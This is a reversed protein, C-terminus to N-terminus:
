CGSPHNNEPNDSDPRLLQDLAEFEDIRFNKKYFFWRDDDNKVSALEEDRVRRYSKDDHAYEEDEDWEDALHKDTTYREDSEPRKELWAKPTRPPPMRMTMEAYRMSEDVNDPNFTPYPPPVHFPKNKADTLKVVCNRHGPVAGFVWVLDLIPTIRWVRLNKVTRKKGGMRGAMKKGKWVRGPDQCAGTAGLARHARSVGHSAHLGAFGWRKMGGQFGKGITTAQVDVYQGPIFHQAHLQTGVPLLADASVRFESLHKKPTVGAKAFHERLPKNVRRALQDIAGIQLANYGENQESKSQVVYNSDIKLVTFAFREGWENFLGMMGLKTALVGTRRSELQKWGSQEDFTPARKPEEQEWSLPEYHIAKGGKPKSRKRRRAQQWSIPTDHVRSILGLSSYQRSTQQRSSVEIIQLSQKYVCNLM